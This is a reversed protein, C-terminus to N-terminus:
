KEPHRYSHARAVLGTQVMDRGCGRNELLTLHLTLGNATQGGDTRRGPESVGEFLVFSQGM